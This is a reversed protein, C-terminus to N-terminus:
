DSDSDDQIAVPIDRDGGHPYLKAACLLFHHFSESGHAKVFLYRALYQHLFNSRIGPRKVWEKLDRWLREICQTTYRTYGREHLRHYAGWQDSIIISGRRIYKEILPLLTGADRKEGVPGILPVVFKKKSVREIGGFVWIQSLVRGREYQRKAILTEDIEVVIGDGGISDQNSLWDETVESCFSRWDVSTKRTIGLNNVVTEHDWLKNIWHNVFLVVKWTPLHCHDLFTGKKDTIRFGCYRRKRTKPVVHSESCRWVGDNNLNCPKQCRPCDVSSPLVGHRRLVAKAADNNEFIDTICRYYVPACGGCGAM